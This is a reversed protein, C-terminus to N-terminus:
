KYTFKLNIDSNLSKHVPCHRASREIILRDKDNIDGYIILEVDVSEIRRVNGQSMNKTVNASINSISIDHTKKAIAIITLMCSGLASAVLDTPSFTRGLGNNDKPADTTIKSKSDNHIIETSLDGKYSITFDSM